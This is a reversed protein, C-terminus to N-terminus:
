QLATGAHNITTDYSNCKYHLIEKMKGFNFNQIDKKHVYIILHKTIRSNNNRIATIFLDIIANCIRETTANAIGARGTGILPIALEEEVHGFKIIYEWLSNLAKYIDDINSNKNNGAENLDNIGVFYVNRKNQQIQSVTGIDYVPYVINKIHLEEEKKEQGYNIASILKNHLNEIETKYFKNQFAGQVSNESIIGGEMTTVFSTNTSIILAGRAETIDGRKISIKIDCGTIRASINFYTKLQFIFCCIFLFIIWCWFNDKFSEVITPAFEIYDFITIVTYIGGIFSLLNQVISLVSNKELLPQLFFMNCVWYRTDVIMITILAM